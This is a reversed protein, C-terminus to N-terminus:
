SSSSNDQARCFTLLIDPDRPEPANTQTLTYTFPTPLGLWARGQWSGCSVIILLSKAAISSAQAQASDEREPRSVVSDATLLTLVNYKVYLHGVQM